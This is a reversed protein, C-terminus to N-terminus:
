QEKAAQVSALHESMRERYEDYVPKTKKFYQSLFREKDYWIERDELLAYTTELTTMFLRDYGTPTKLYQDSGDQNMSDYFRLILFQERFTKLDVGLEHLSLTERSEQFRAYDEDRLISTGYDDKLDEELDSLTKDRTLRTQIFPYYVLRVEDKDFSQIVAPFCSDLQFISEGEKINSRMYRLVVDGPQFTSQLYKFKEEPSYERNMHGLQRHYMVFAEWEPQYGYAPKSGIAFMDEAIKNGYGALIYIDVYEREKQSYTETGFVVKPMAEGRQYARVMLFALLSVYATSRSDGHMVRNNLPDHNFDYVVEEPTDKVLTVGEVTGTFYLKQKAIHSTFRSKDVTFGLDLGNAIAFSYAESKTLDREIPVGLVFDRDLMLKAYKGLEYALLIESGSLIRKIKRPLFDNINLFGTAGLIHGGTSINVGM